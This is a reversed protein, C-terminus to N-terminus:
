WTKPPHLIIKLSYFPILIKLIIALINNSIETIKKMNEVYFYNLIYLLIIAPISYIEKEKSFLYLPIYFFILNAALLVEKM